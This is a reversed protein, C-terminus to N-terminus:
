SQSIWNDTSLLSTSQPQVITCGEKKLIKTLSFESFHYKFYVWFHGFLDIFHAVQCSVVAPTVSANQAKKVM